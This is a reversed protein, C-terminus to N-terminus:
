HAIAIGFVGAAGASLLARRADKMTGASEVVDDVLIVHRGEVSTGDPVFFSNAVNGERTARPIHTQSEREERKLISPEFEVSEM